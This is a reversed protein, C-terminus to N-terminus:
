KAEGSVFRQIRYKEANDRLWSQIAAQYNGGAVPAFGDKATVGLQNFLLNASPRMASVEIPAKWDADLLARLIQKSEDADIPEQKPSGRFTRYRDILIAAALLREDADKAKLSAQPNETVKGVAKVVDVEKDFGPNKEANVFYGIPGGVVYFNEKPQKKLLYLGEQGVKLELNRVVGTTIVLPGKPDPPPPPPIFGIRLTKEDKVGRLAQNVRVVAIRYTSKGVMVDQPEIGEVKGVIVADSNAIRSPGPAPMPLVGAQVAAGLALV